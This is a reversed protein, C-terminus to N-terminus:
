LVTLRKVVQGQTTQVVVVYLGARRGSFPLVVEDAAGKTAQEFVLSGIADYIRVHEVVFDAKQWNLTVNGRTPNPYVLV